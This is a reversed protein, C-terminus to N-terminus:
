KSFVVISSQDKFTQRMKAEWWLNEKGICKMTEVMKLKLRLGEM